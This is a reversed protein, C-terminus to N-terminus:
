FELCYVDHQLHAKVKSETVNAGYNIDSVSFCLPVASRCLAKPIFQIVWMWVCVFGKGDRLVTCSSALCQLVHSTTCSVYCFALYVVCCVFPPGSSISVLFFYFSRSVCLINSTVSLVLLLCKRRM